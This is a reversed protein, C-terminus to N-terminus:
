GQSTANEDTTWSITATFEGPTGSSIGSIAPGNSDITFDNTPVAGTEFEVWLPSPYDGTGTCTLNHTGGNNHCTRARWKYTGQGLTVSVSETGGAPAAVGISEATADSFATASTRAEVQLYLTGGSIGGSVAAKLCVTTSTTTAEDAIATSCDSRYQNLSLPNAPTNDLYTFAKGNSPYTSSYLIVTYGGPTLSPVTAAVATDSPVGTVTANATGFKVDDGDDATANWSAAGLCAGSQCFHNGNLTRSDPNVGDASPTISTIRPLVRFGSATYQHQKNNTGNGQQVAFSGTYINDAIVTPVQATISTNGWATTTVSGTPSACTSSDCGLIRVWGGTSSTGFRTGNITVVGDTDGADYERAANSGVAVLSTM